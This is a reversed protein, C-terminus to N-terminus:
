VREDPDRITDTIWGIYRDASFRIADKAGPALLGPAFGDYLRDFALPELATVIKRVSRESLPIRNPFSRLFTVTKRDTNVGVTDGTLIAGKGEAGAPWHLVASGAFHGGCQVLTLGPLPKASDIWWTIAPDPKMVWRRNDGNVWIPVNGFRHSLSISLGTLHPHSSAIVAIGGLENLKEILTDDFYGPPDFLLNGKPTRVLLGRHGIGVSPAVTVAHLDPELERVTAARTEQLTELTTWAQGDPPLYQREDACLPCEAPREDSFENGCTACLWITM